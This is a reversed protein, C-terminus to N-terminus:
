NNQGDSQRMAMHANLIKIALDKQKSDVYIRYFVAPKQYRKFLPTYDELLFIKQSKEVVFFPIKATGYYKSLLSKSESQIYSIQNAKLETFLEDRKIEGM